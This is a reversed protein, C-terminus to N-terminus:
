LVHLWKWYKNSRNKRFMKQFYQHIRWLRLYSKNLLFGRSRGEGYKLDGIGDFKAIDVKKNSMASITIFGYRQDQKISISMSGEESYDLDLPIDEFDNLDFSGVDPTRDEDEELRM